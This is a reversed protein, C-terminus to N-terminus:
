AENNQWTGVPRDLLCYSLADDSPYDPGTSHMQMFRIWFISLRASEAGDTLGSGCLDPVVM